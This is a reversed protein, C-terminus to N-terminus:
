GIAGRLCMITAQWNIIILELAFMIHLVFNMLKIFNSLSFRLIESQLFLFFIITNSSSRIGNILTAQKSNIRFLIETRILHM